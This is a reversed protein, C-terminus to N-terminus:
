TEYDIKISKGAEHTKDEVDIMIGNSKKSIIYADLDDDLLESKVQDGMVAIKMELPEGAKYHKTTRVVFTGYITKVSAPLAVGELSALTKFRSKKVTIDAKGQKDVEIKFQLAVMLTDFLAQPADVALPSTGYHDVSKLFGKKEIYTRNIGLRRIMETSVERSDMILVEDDVKSGISGLALSKLLSAGGSSDDDQAVLVTAQIHYVPKKVYLYLVAMALCGAVCVAFLWWYRKHKKYIAEFDIVKEAPQQATITKNLPTM